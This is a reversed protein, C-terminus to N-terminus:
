DNGMNATHQSSTNDNPPFDIHTIRRAFGLGAELAGEILGGNGFSTESSIFHLRGNWANGLELQLGYRPHFGPPQRDAASATFTEASWDLYHVQRPQRAADGFLDGLQNIAQSIFEAQGISDRSAADLGSFGFLAFVRGSKPSADHIEALPGRQSIASGCLGQARWFPEDYLAFLKAHGAMWTPTAAMAQLAQASLEPAFVLEAALRPPLALVVQSAEVSLSGSPGSLQAVVQDADLDLRTLEHELLRHSADIEDVLRSSLRGIGGEIRLAGAMHSGQPIQEVRADRQQFLVRGDVFQDYFPIKFYDLLAAVRPQGPWFWSPGLDCDAGHDANTLVRGGFRSRAEILTADVNARRLQWSASLGSLGGGVILVDTKL